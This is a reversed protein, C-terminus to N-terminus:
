SPQLFVKFIIPYLVSCIGWFLLLSVTQSFIITTLFKVTFIKNCMKKSFIYNPMVTLISSGVAFTFTCILFIINMDKTRTDAYMGVFLSIMFAFPILVISGLYVGWYKIHTMFYNKLYYIM